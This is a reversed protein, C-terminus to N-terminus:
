RENKIKKTIMRFAKNDDVSLARKHKNKTKWWHINDLADIESCGTHSVIMLMFPREKELENNKAEKLALLLGVSQMYRKRDRRDHMMNNLWDIDRHSVSDINVIFSDQPYVRYSLNNKRENCSGDWNWVTGGPNYRFFLVDYKKDYDIKYIGTDPRNPISNEYAYYKNYLRDGKYMPPDYALIRDGSQVTTTDLFDIFTKSGDTILNDIMEYQFVVKGDEQSKTNLFSIKGFMRGFVETRDVLGQMLILGHKYKELKDYKNSDDHMKIIQDFEEIDPFLKDSFEMLSNITYFNEGNRIIIYTKMEQNIAWRNNFPDRAYIEKPNRRVRMIRVCKKQPLIFEYNHKKTHSNVSLLWNDFKDISDFSIGGNSPDGVEEDMYLMQQNLYIPEDDYAPNGSQIHKINEEMGAYLKLTFIVNQLRKIVKEQVKIIDYVQRTMYETKAKVMAYVANVYAKSEEVNELMKKYLDENVVSLGSQSEDDKYLDDPDMKGSMIKKVTKKIDNYKIHIPLMKAYQNFDSITIKKYYGIANTFIYIRGESDEFGTIKCVEGGIVIVQGVLIDKDNIQLSTEKLIIEKKM